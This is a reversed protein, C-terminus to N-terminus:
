VLDRFDRQADIFRAYLDGFRGGNREEVFVGNLMNLFEYGTTGYVAWDEPLREHGTLVKEVIVYFPRYAPGSDLVNLPHKIDAAQAEACRQQLCRLYQGPDLLGDVQDIRLRNDIGARGTTAHASPGGRLSGLSESAGGLLHCNKTSGAIVIDLMLQIVAKFRLSITKKIPAAAQRM